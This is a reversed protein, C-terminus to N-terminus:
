SKKESQLSKYMMVAAKLNFYIVLSIKILLAIEIIFLVM